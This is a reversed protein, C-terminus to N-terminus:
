IKVLPSMVSVRVVFEENEFFRIVPIPTLWIVTHLHGIVLTEKWIDAAENKM